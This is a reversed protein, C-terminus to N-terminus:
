CVGIRLSPARKRCSYKLGTSTSPQDTKKIKNTRRGGGRVGGREDGYGHLGCDRNVPIWSVHNLILVGDIFEGNDLPRRELDAREDVQGGGRLGAGIKRDDSGAAQIILRVDVDQVNKTAPPLPRIGLLV